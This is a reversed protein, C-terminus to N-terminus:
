GAHIHIQSLSIAPVSRPLDGAISVHLSLVSSYNYCQLCFQNYGDDCRDFTIVGSIAITALHHVFRQLSLSPDRIEEFTNLTLCPNLIQFILSTWLLGQMFAMVLAFTQFEM